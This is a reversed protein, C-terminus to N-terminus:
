TLFELVGKRVEVSYTKGDYKELRDDIHYTKEGCNIVIKEGKISTFPLPEHLQDAALELFPHREHEQVFTINLLGDETDALPALYINPGVSAINMVEISLFKGQYHQEDVQIIARFPEYQEIITKLAKRAKELEEDVSLPEKAGSMKQILAPIVGFGFSELFFDKRKDLILKGVDFKTLTPKHWQDITTKFDPSLALTKAINNATGLPLLGVPPQKELLPKTLLLNAVKRITGDGGAVVLFDYDNVEIEEWGDKKTSYYTCHFGATEILSQLQKPTFDQEGAKPNHLLATTKM